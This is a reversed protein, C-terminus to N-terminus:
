GALRAYGWIRHYKGGAGFTRLTKMFRNFRVFSDFYCVVGNRNGVGKKSSFGWYCFQKFIVIISLLSTGNMIKSRIGFNINAQNSSFSYSASYYISLLQVSKSLIGIEM